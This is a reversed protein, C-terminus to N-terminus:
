HFFGVHFSCVCWVLPHNWHLGKLFYVVSVLVAWNRSWIYEDNKSGWIVDGVWIPVFDLLRISLMKEVSLGSSGMEPLMSVDVDSWRACNRNNGICFVLPLWFLFKYFSNWFGQPFHILQPGWFYLSPRLDEFEILVLHIFGKFLKEM